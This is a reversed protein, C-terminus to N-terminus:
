SYIIFSKVEICRSCKLNPQSILKSCIYRVRKRASRTSCSQNKLYLESTLCRLGRSKYFTPLTNSEIDKPSTGLTHCFTYTFAKFCNFYSKLVLTKKILKWELTRSTEIYPGDIHLCSKLFSSLKTILISVYFILNKM